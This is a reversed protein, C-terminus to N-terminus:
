SHLQTTWQGPTRCTHRRVTQERWRPEVASADGLEHFEQLRSRKNDNRHATPVRAWLVPSRDPDETRAWAMDRLGAAWRKIQVSKDTLRRCRSSHRRGPTSLSKIWAARSGTIRRSLLHAATLWMAKAEWCSGGSPRAARWSSRTQRRIPTRRQRCRRASRHGYGGRFTRM